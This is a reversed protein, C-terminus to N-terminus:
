PRDGMQRAESGVVIDFSRAVNDNVAVQWYRPYQPAPVVGSVVAPIVGSLQALTDDVSAYASALMGAGVLADSFGFVPQRRRYTTELLERLSTRTYLARDPFILVATASGLRSLNRSLSVALDAEVLVLEQGHQVAAARLVPVM